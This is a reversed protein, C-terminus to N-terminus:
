LTIRSPRIRLWLNQEAQMPTSVQSYLVMVLLLNRIRTGSWIEMRQIRNPVRSGVSSNRHNHQNTRNTALNTVSLHIFSIKRATSMVIQCATSDVSSLDCTTLGQLLGRGRSHRSRRRSVGIGRQGFDFTQWTELESNRLLNWSGDARNNM